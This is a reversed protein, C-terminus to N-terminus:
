LFGAAIAAGVLILTSGGLEHSHREVSHGFRRGQELGTLSMGVSVVGIVIVASALTVQQTGLVFGVVLDDISLARATVIL